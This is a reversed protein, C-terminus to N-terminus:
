SNWSPYYPTPQTNKALRMPHRPQIPHTKNLGLHNMKYSLGGDGLMDRVYQSRGLKLGANGWACVIMASQRACKMIYSDNNEGIHSEYKIADSKSARFAFLNCTWLTGYGQERIFRECNRRTVHNIREERGKKTGPNLMIFLVAGEKEPNDCLKAELWYRYRRDPDPSYIYSYKGSRELHDDGLPKM